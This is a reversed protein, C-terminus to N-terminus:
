RTLVRNVYALAEEYGPASRDAETMKPTRSPWDLKLEPALFDCRTADSGDWPITVAEVAITPVPTYWGHCVGTPIVLTQLRESRLQLMLSRGFTPSFRRLDHLGFLIEGSLVCFLDVQRVHVQMGRLSDAETEFVNLQPPADSLGAGLRFIETM